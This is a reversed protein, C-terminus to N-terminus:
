QQVQTQHSILNVLSDWKVRRQNKFINEYNKMNWSIFTKPNLIKSAYRVEYHLHPGTSRGSNGSLAIIDGKKIVDGVKVKSKNLHAYVTEFGFNHSIIVTRGWNGKNKNQVYRVIGDATAYVKTKRKARLDIGQHFKRKKTVPHIRFGYKGTVKTKKLPSGSPITHFMYKKQSSTIKALTARQILTTKDDKKIGIIEEIDELKDGLEKIDQVKDQIQMNYLRNQAILSQEKETLLRIQQEKKSKVDVLKDNLFNVVVIAVVIFVFIFAVLWYFLKKVLQTITYSKTQNVDSITITLRDKM